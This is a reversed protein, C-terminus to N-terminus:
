RDISRDGISVCLALVINFFIQRQSGKRKVQLELFVALKLQKVTYFIM